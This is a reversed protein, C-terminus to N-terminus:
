MIALPIDLPMFDVELCKSSNALPFRLSSTEGLYKFAFSSIPTIVLEMFNICSDKPTIILFIFSFEVFMLPCASFKDDTESSIAFADCFTASDIDSTALPVFVCDSSNICIVSVRLSDLESLIDNKLVTIGVSWNTGQVPAYGVYKDLGNYTYGGIGEEGTIMKNQIDALPQLDPNKKSEEIMNSMQLVLDKNANAISTGTGNIMFATGSKGVKVQNTLNSLYNGDRKEILVGM